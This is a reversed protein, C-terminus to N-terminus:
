LVNSLLKDFVDIQLKVVRKEDYLEEARKRGAHKMSDMLIEDDLLRIIRDLIDKPDSPNVLYGTHGDVVEERSGRINTAIVACRMAMAEIISRPMGERYSPLCFIDTICLINSIDTRNGTFIINKEKKYDEILTITHIDRDGQFVDGVVLLRVNDRYLVSFAELLDLIGKERVLRGVFTIVRDGENLNFEKRLLSIKREDVNDPNFKGCIDVGNGIALIRDKCKFGNELAVQADEKSQTFLFDTFYKAMFKEVLLILKYVVPRMNEHFYFGHATYVIIPVGALKSSIRGLAAAVPTHVHVIDPKLKKFLKYMNWISKLNAIPKIGRDINVNVINFGENILEQTANGNSCVGTLIYGEKLISTNLERLLKDMTTDIACVQIIKFKNM